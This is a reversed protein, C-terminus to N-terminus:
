GPGVGATLQQVDQPSFLPLNPCLNKTHVVAMSIRGRENWMEGPKVVGWGSSGVIKRLEARPHSVPLATHRLRQTAEPQKGQGVSFHKSKQVM